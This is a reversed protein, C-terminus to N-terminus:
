VSVFCKSKKKHQLYLSAVCMQQLSGSFSNGPCLVIQQVLHTLLEFNESCFVFLSTQEEHRVDFVQLALSRGRRINVSVVQENEDFAVM